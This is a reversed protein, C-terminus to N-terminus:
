WDCRVFRRGQFNSQRRELSPDAQMGFFFLSSNSGEEGVERKKTGREYRRGGLAALDCTACEEPGLKSKFTRKTRLEPLRCSRYLAAGSGERNREKQFLSLSLFPPLFLSFILPPNRPIPAKERRGKPPNEERLVRGRCCCCRSPVPPVASEAPGRTPRVEVICREKSASRAIGGRGLSRVDSAASDLPFFQSRLRVPGM